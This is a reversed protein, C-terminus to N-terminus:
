KIISTISFANMKVYINRIQVACKLVLSVNCGVITVVYKHHKNNNM